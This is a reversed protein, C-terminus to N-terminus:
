PIWGVGNGVSGSKLEIGIWNHGDYFECLDVRVRKVYDCMKWEESGQIDEGDTRLGLVDLRRWAGGGDM